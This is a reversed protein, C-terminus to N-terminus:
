CSTMPTISHRAAQMARAFVRHTAPDIREIRHDPLLEIGAARIDTAKRHALNDIETVERSLYYPIGCISFNPYSDAVAVTVHWEPTLERGRLAASIGADSGGIIFFRSM